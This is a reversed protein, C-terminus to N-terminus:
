SGSLRRQVGEYEQVEVAQYRAMRGALDRVSPDVANAAAYESMHLGGRHHNIMLELFQRDVETGTAATLDALERESAMGPMNRLPAPMGMWAMTIRDPDYEAPEAGQHELMVSMQGLEFRQFIVIEEAMSRVVPDVARPITLQAIEVAQDHHESMDQLFGIDVPSTPEQTSRVGVFYGAAGFLFALAVALIARQVSAMGEESGLRRALPSTGDDLDRAAADATTDLDSDDM